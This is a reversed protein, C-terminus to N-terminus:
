APLSHENTQRPEWEPDFLQATFWTEAEYDDTQSVARLKEAKEIVFVRYRKLFEIQAADLQAMRKVGPSEWDFGPSFPRQGKCCFHFHALIIKSGMLIARIIPMDVFRVEFKRRRAFGRHFNCQLEYNHLLIFVALFTVFWNSSKNALILTQLQKLVVIRLPELVRETFVAAIQYNVFPPVQVIPDREYRHSLEEAGLTESGCCRWRGELFRCAVWLRLVDSLLKNPQPFITLRLAWHFVDFVFRNSDDLVTELYTDMNRDVYENAFKAAEDPNAIAWPISYMKNGRADDLVLEENSPVFERIQLRLIVNSDQAIELTKTRTGVWERPIHFDGYTPGVMLHLRFFEFHQFATRYLNIDTIKYRLCPLRTISSSLKTCTLCPADLDDPNPLCRNRLIRCKICSNLTRTLSTEERLAASSFSKRKKKNANKTKGGSRM